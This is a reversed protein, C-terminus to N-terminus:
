GLRHLGDSFSRHADLATALWKLDYGDTSSPQSFFEEVKKWAWETLKTEFLGDSAALHPLRSEDITLFAKAVAQSRLGSEVITTPASRLFAERLHTILAMQAVFRSVSIDDEPRKNAMDVRLLSELRGDVSREFRALSALDTPRLKWLWIGTSCLMKLQEDSLRVFIRWSATNFGWQASVKEHEKAPLARLARACFLNVAGLRETYDIEKAIQWNFQSEM